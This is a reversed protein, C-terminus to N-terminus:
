MEEPQGFRTTATRAKQWMTNPPDRHPQLGWLGRVRYRFLWRKALPVNWGNARGFEAIQEDSIMDADVMGGLGDRRVSVVAATQEDLPEWDTPMLGDLANARYGKYWQMLVRWPIGIERARQRIEAYNGSSVALPGLM